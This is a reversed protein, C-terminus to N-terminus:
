KGNIEMSIIQDIEDQSLQQKLTPLIVSKEKQPNSTARDREYHQDM